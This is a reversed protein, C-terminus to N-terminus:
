PLPLSSSWFNPNVGAFTGCRGTAPLALPMSFFRAVRAALFVIPLFAFSWIVPVGIWAWALAAGRRTV